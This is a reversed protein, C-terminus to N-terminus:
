DVDMFRLFLDVMWYPIAFYVSPSSIFVRAKIEMKVTDSIVLSLEYNRDRLAVEAGGAM